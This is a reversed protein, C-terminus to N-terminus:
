ICVIYVFPCLLAINHEVTRIVKVCAKFDILVHKLSFNSNCPICEPREENYHVDEIHIYVSHMTQIINIRVQHLRYSLCNEILMIWVKCLTQICISSTCRRNHASKVIKKKLKRYLWFYLFADGAGPFLYVQSSILVNNYNEDSTIYSMRPCANLRLIFLGHEVLLTHVLRTKWTFLGAVTFNEFHYIRCRYNM